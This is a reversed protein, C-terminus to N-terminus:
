TSINYTPTLLIIQILFAELHFRFNGTFFFFDRIQIRIQKKKTQCHFQERITLDREIVIKLFCIIKM